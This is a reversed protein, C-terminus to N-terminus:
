TSGHMLSAGIVTVSRYGDEVLGIYVEFVSGQRSDYLTILQTPRWRPFQRLVLKESLRGKILGGAVQTQGPM